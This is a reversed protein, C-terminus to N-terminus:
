KMNDITSKVVGWIITATSVVGLVVAIIVIGIDGAIPYFGVTCLTYVGLEVILAAVMMVVDYYVRMANQEKVKVPMNWLSIPVFHLMLVMSIGVILMVAALFFMGSDGHAALMLAVAIVNSVVLLIIGIVECLIIKSNIYPKNM